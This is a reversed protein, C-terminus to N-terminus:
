GEAQTYDSVRTLIDFYPSRFFQLHKIALRAVAQVVEVRRDTLLLLVLIARHDVVRRMCESVFVYMYICVYIYTYIYIYIYICVYIHTNIHIYIYIVDISVYIYLYICISM